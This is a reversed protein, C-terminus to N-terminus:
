AVRTLIDRDDFKNTEVLDKTAVIAGDRDLVPETLILLYEEEDTLPRGLQARLLSRVQSSKSSM